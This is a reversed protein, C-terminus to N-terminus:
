YEEENDRFAYKLQHLRRMADVISQGWYLKFNDVVAWLADHMCEEVGGQYAALFNRIPQYADALNESVSKWKTEDTQLTEEYSVDLYQDDHGLISWVVRRLWNYDEETVQDAPLFDGESEVEPLLQAKLYLLPLLKLLTDVFVERQRGESQELFACFQVAVQVFELTDHNYIPNNNDSNM